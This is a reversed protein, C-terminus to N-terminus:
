VDDGMGEQKAEQRKLCLCMAISNLPKEYTVSRTLILVGLLCWDGIGIKKDYLDFTALEMFCLRECSVFCSYIRLVAIRLSGLATDLFFLRM